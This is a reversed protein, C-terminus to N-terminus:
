LGWAHAEKERPRAFVGAVKKKNKQARQQQHEQLVQGQQQQQMCSSVIQLWAAHRLYICVGASTKPLSLISNFQRLDDHTHTNHLLLYTAHGPDCLSLSLSFLEEYV